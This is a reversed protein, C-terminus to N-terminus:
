GKGTQWCKMTREGEATMTQDEKNLSLFGPLFVYVCSLQGGTAVMSKEVSETPNFFNILRRGLLDSATWAKRNDKFFFSFM